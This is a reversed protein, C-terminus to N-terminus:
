KIKVQMIFMITHFFDDTLMSLATGKADTGRQRDLDTLILQFVPAFLSESAAFEM